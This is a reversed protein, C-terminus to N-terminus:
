KPSNSINDSGSTKVLPIVKGSGISKRKIEPNGNYYINGSGTTMTKLEKEAYCGINGNGTITCNVDRAKLDHARIEGSGTVSLDVSRCSGKLLMDGSGTFLKAKIVEFDLQEAQIQGNGTVQFEIESGKLPGSIEFVSAGDNIVETLESSYIHIVIVGFDKKGLGPLKITLKGKKSETKLAQAVNEEAYIEILGAKESDQHYMVNFNNACTVRFFDDVQRTTNVYNNDGELKKFLQGYSPAATLLFICILIFSLRKM